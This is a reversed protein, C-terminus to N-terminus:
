GTSDQNHSSRSSRHRQSLVSESSILPTEDRELYLAALQVLDRGFNSEERM